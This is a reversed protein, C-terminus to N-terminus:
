VPWAIVRASSDALPESYGVWPGALELGLSELADSLHSVSGLPEPGADELTPLTSLIEAREVRYTYNRRCHVIYAIAMSPGNPISM